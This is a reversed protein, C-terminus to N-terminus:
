LLELANSIGFLPHLSWWRLLGIPGGVICWALTTILFASRIEMRRCLRNIGIAVPVSIVAIGVTQSVSLWSLRATNQAVFMGRFWGPTPQAVTFSIVCAIAVLYIFALLGTGALIRAANSSTTANDPVM